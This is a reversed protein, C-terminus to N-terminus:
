IHDIRKKIIKFLENCTENIEYITDINKKIKGKKPKKVYNKSLYDSSLSLNLAATSLKYILDTIPAVSFEIYDKERPDLPLESLENKVDNFNNIKDTLDSM